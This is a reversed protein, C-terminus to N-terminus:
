GLLRTIDQYLVLVMLLALFALGIRQGRELAAESPPRGSVAEYAFYALHGGDLIPLPLLNLVALSVSILALLKVFQVLGLTVATGAADAMTLPGGLNKLSAEGVLMRWLVKLTLASYEWTQQAARGIAELPGYSYEVFYDDWLGEVPEVRAGIRGITRGDMDVAQPILEISHESGDREIRVRILQGPHGQVYGVWANWDVIAQGEASIIRDGQRLGAQAAPEGAIIEGIVAPQHPLKAQIGLVKLPDDLEAFDGLSGAELTLEDQRGSADVVGFRLSEGAVSAAALQYLTESWSRATEGNIAVIEDGPRFGARAAPSGQEVTGVLPRLGSEGLMAVLWFAVLAFAFNFMPGALVVASRAWLGKRNFASGLQDAPVQGEREDLMKVYGGLPLAAVVYETPEAFGDAARRKGRWSLLPRGFGISFRLVRVGVRRAVWFHGFEHVTVLIAVALIFAFFKILISEM